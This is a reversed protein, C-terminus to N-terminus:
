FEIKNYLESMTTKCDISSMSIMEDYETYIRYIYQKGNQQAYHEVRMKAEDVLLYEQVSEMSLYLELKETKDEVLTKKSLIEFIVTPNTLVDLDSGCFKPSGKVVVVDPYSFNNESLKVQMNSMYIECKHRQLRSGLAIIINSGILSHHRGSSKPAEIKGHQFNSNIINTREASLYNEVVPSSNQVSLVKDNM